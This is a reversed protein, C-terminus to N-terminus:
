PCLYGTSISLDIVSCVLSSLGNRITLSIPTLSILVCKILASKDIPTSTNLISLCYVSIKLSGLLWCFCYNSIQSSSIFDIFSLSNHVRM